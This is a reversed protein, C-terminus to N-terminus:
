PAQARLSAKWPRKARVANAARIQLQRRKPTKRLGFGRARKRAKCIDNIRKAPMKAYPSARRKHTWRRKPTKRRCNATSFTQCQKHQTATPIQLQRRKPTKRFGFGRARKRAKCIDNIRKAPMKADPSARKKTHGVDSQRNAGAFQPPSPKANDTFTARGGKAAARAPRRFKPSPHVANEVFIPPSSGSLEGRAPSGEAPRQM